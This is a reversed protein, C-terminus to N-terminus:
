FDAHRGSSFSIGMGDATRLIIGSSSVEWDGMLWSAADCVGAVPGDVKRIPPGGFKGDKIGQNIDFSNQRTKFQTVFDAM